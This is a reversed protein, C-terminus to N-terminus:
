YIEYSYYDEVILIYVMEFEGIFLCRVLFMKGVSVVGFLVIDFFIWYYRILICCYKM